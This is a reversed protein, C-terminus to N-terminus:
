EMKDSSIDKRQKNAIKHKYILKTLILEHIVRCLDLEMPLLTSTPNEAKSPVGM